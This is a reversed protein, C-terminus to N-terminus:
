RASVILGKATVVVWHGDQRRVSEVRGLGPLQDGPGVEFMGERSEVLARGDEVDRVVWGTLVAPKDRPKPLPLAAPSTKAISGTIDAATRREIREVAEAIKALKAAPDTQLREARQLREGIRTFQSSTSQANAEIATKLAAVEATLKSTLQRLAGNDATNGVASSSSSGSFLHAIGTAGLSGFIAGLAAALALAAALHLFRRPPASHASAPPPTPPEVVPAEGTASKTATNEIPTADVLPEPVISPADDAAPGNADGDAHIDKRKSMPADKGFLIVSGNVM